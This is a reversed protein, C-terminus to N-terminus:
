QQMGNSCSYIFRCVRVWHSKSMHNGQVVDVHNQQYYWTSTSHVGFQESNYVNVPVLPQIVIKLNFINGPVVKFSNLKLSIWPCPNFWAVNIIRKYPCNIHLPVSASLGVVLILLFSDLFLGTRNSSKIQHNHLLLTLISDNKMTDHFSNSKESIIPQITIIVDLIRGNYNTQRNHYLSWSYRHYPLIEKQTNIMPSFSSWNHFCVTRYLQSSASYCCLLEKSKIRQKSYDGSSLPSQDAQYYHHNTQRCIFVISSYKQHISDIFLRDIFLNTV